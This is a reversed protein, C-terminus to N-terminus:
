KKEELVIEVFGDPLVKAKVKFKTGMIEVPIIEDLRGNTMAKADVVSYKGKARVQTGAKVAIPLDSPKPKRVSDRRIFSGVSTHKLVIAGILERVDSFHDSEGNEIMKVEIDEEKIVDGRRLERKAVCVPEQEKAVEEKKAVRTVKVKEGLITLVKDLGRWELERKIEEVTIFRWDGEAPAFGLYVNKTKPLKSVTEPNAEVLDLLNVFKASLEAEKKLVLEDASAFSYVLFSLAFIRLTWWVLKM